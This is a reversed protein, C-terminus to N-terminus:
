FNLFWNASATVQAQSNVQELLHKVTEHLVGLLPNPFVGIWFVLVALPLLTVVERASMDLLSENKPKLEMFM